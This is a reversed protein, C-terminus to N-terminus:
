ADYAGNQNPSESTTHSPFSSGGGNIQGTRFEPRPFARHSANLAPRKVPRIPSDDADDDSGTLDIVQSAPRKNTSLRAVSSTASPERSQAPTQQLTLGSAPMSEQKVRAIGPEKIEILEDDDDDTAPTVGATGTLEEGRPNSWRGDPEIIVQDADPPTSHLIDAVYQDIQLSEFSTAKSCVPCSWTPAQEQLQLFSSADFCQNHTCLVTRCPVEIRLTSLPCKLSLVTSTAVIDSDEAKNKMERLVQEKTITKRRKLESVLEEVPHRQVLNVLVFFSPSAKQTLAYTMVINNPYGPKKRIYNTVDAPRTTGPKNKLGKLNAKVEDLNAKLEVQQPFAIDSKTYQNLGSDAACYVMIRLNPDNQLRSALNQTLVVKLEVNDRTQERIKCEITPTLHELITYFPSDKFTVRCWTYFWAVVDTRNFIHAQTTNTDVARYIVGPM